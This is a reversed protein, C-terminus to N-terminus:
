TCDGGYYFSVFGSPLSFGLTTLSESMSSYVCALCFTGHELGEMESLLPSFTQCGSSNYDVSACHVARVQGALINGRVRTPLGRVMRATM